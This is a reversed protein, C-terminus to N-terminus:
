KNKKKKTPKSKKSELDIPGDPCTTAHFLGKVIVSAKPGSTIRGVFGNDDFQQIDLTSDETPGGVLAVQTPGFAFDYTQAIALSFKGKGRAPVNGINAVALTGSGMQEPEIALHDCTPPPQYAFDWVYLNLNKTKPDLKVLAGDGQVVESKHQSEVSLVSEGPDLQSTPDAKKAAELDAIQKQTPQARVPMVNDPCVTAHVTALTKGSADKAEAELTKQDYTTIALTSNDPLGGGTRMEQKAANGAVYGFGSVPFTGIKKEGAQDTVSISGFGGSKFNQMGNFSILSCDPVPQSAADFVYLILAQMSPSYQAFAPGTAEYGDDGRAKNGEISIHSPALPASAPANVNKAGGGCAALILSAMM